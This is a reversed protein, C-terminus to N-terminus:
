KAPQATRPYSAAALVGNNRHCACRGLSQAFSQLPRDAELGDSLVVLASPPEILLRVAQAADEPTHPPQAGVWTLAAYVESLIGTTVCAAFDGSRAAEVLPRSEAYRPDGKLLAGILVGADFLTLKPPTMM